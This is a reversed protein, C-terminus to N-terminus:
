IPELSDLSQLMSIAMAEVEPERILSDAFYWDMWLDGSACVAVDLLILAQAADGSMVDVLHWPAAEDGCRPPERTFNFALARASPATTKAERKRAEVVARRGVRGADSRACVVLERFDVDLVEVFPGVDRAFETRRVSIPFAVARAWREDPSARLFAQLLVFPLALETSHQTIRATTQGGLIQRTSQTRRRIGQGMGPHTPAPMSTQRAAFRLYGDDALRRDSDWPSGYIAAIDSAVLWSSYRDFVVHQIVFRWEVHEAATLIAVAVLPTSFVDWHRSLESAYWEILHAGDRVEVIDITGFREPVLLLQGDEVAIGAGLIPRIQRLRAAVDTASRRSESDVTVQVAFSTLVGRSGPDQGVLSSQFITIPVAASLRNMQALTDM